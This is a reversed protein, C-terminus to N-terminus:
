YDYQNREFSYKNGNWYLNGTSFQVKKDASISFRGPLANAKENKDYGCVTCIGASGFSHSNRDAIETAHECNAKHWHNTSDFLWENSYSHQHANSNNEEVIALRISACAKDLELYMTDHFYRLTKEKNEFSKEPFWYYPTTRSNEIAFPIFVAGNAEMLSWVLTSCKNTKRPAFDCGSPATYQDPLFVIGSIDYSFGSERPEKAEITLYGWKESANSRGRWLYDFEDYTLCVWESNDMVNFKNGDAFVDNWYFVGNTSRVGSNYKTDIYAGYDSDSDKLNKNFDYQNKEFQYKSSSPKFSLNGKSFRVQKGTADITFM